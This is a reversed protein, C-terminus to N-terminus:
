NSASVMPWYRSRVKVEVFSAQTEVSGAGQALATGPMFSLASVAAVAAGAKLINRRSMTEDSANAAGQKIVSDNM